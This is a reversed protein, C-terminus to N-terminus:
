PLQRVVHHRPTHVLVAVHRQVVPRPVYTTSILSLNHMNSDVRTPHLPHKPVAGAHLQARLRGLLQLRCADAFEEHGVPPLPGGRLAVTPAAFGFTRYLPFAKHGTVCRWRRSRGAAVRWRTAWRTRSRTTRRSWSSPRAS